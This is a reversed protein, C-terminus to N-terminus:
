VPDAASTAHKAGFGIDLPEVSRPGIEADCSMFSVRGDPDIHVASLSGTQYAGTDISIRNPRVECLLSETVTHGHVVIKGHLEEHSLFPEKIWMLDYARQLVMPVGPVIGAHVLVHGPLEVYSEAGRFLQLHEEPFRSALDAVTFSEPDFGYSAITADGGLNWLWHFLAMHQREGQLEDLIRIPFWDHNGLVLSSGPIAVLTESVLTMATKSAPGRDIIGGLFVIRFDIGDAKAQTRIFELLPSLLDARGHIDGIAFTHM